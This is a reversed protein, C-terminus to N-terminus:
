SVVTAIRRQMTGHHGAVNLNYRQQQFEARIHIQLVAGALCDKVQSDVIVDRVDEPFRSCVLLNLGGAAPSDHSRRGWCRLASARWGTGFDDRNHTDRLRSSHALCRCLGCSHAVFRSSHTVCKRPRASHTICRRWRSSHAVTTYLTRPPKCRFVVGSGQYGTAPQQPSTAQREFISARQECNNM